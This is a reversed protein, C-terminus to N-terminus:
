RLDQISVQLKEMLFELDEMIDPDDFKRSELLELQKLVKCQVMSLSMEQLVDRDTTKELLNQPSCFM